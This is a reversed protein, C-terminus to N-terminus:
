KSCSPTAYKRYAYGNRHGVYKAYVEGDKSKVLLYSPNYKGSFNIHTPNGRTANGVVGDYENGNVNEEQVFNIKKPPIVNKNTAQSLGFGEKVPDRRINALFRM